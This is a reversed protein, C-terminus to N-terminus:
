SPGELQHELHFDTAPYPALWPGILALTAHLVVIPLGIRGAPTRLALRFQNLLSRGAAAVGSGGTRLLGTWAIGTM